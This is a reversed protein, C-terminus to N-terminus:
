YTPRYNADKKLNIGKLCRIYGNNAINLNLINNRVVPILMSESSFVYEKCKNFNIFKKQKTFSSIIGFLSCIRMLHRFMRGEIKFKIIIKLIIM